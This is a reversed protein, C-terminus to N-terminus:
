SFDQGGEVAIWQPMYNGPVAGGAISRKQGLIMLHDRRLLGQATAGPLRLAGAAHYLLPSLVKTKISPPWLVLLM